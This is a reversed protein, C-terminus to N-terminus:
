SACPRLPWGGAGNLTMRRPPRPSPSCHTLVPICVWGGRLDRPRLRSRMTWSGSGPQADPDEPKVAAPRSLVANVAFPYQRADRIGSDAPEPLGSAALRARAAVFIQALTIDPAPPNGPVGSRVTEIFAETFYTLDGHLPFGAKERRKSAGIFYLGDM